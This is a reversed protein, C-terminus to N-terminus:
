LSFRFISIPTNPLVIQPICDTWDSVVFWAANEVLLTVHYVLGLAVGRVLKKIICTKGRKARTVHNKASPMPQM